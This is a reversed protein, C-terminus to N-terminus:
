DTKVTSSKSRIQKDTANQQFSLNNNPFLHDLMAVCEKVLKYLLDTTFFPRKDYKKLIKVLGLSTTKGGGNVGVIMIVAPKRFGLQLETKSGKSTLLQLVSTKLAEKFTEWASAVDRDVTVNGGGGNVDSVYKQLLVSKLQVETGDLMDQNPIGDFLSPRIWGEVVLWGGLNVGRVKESLGNALFVGMLILALASCLAPNFYHPPLSSPHFDLHRPPSEPSFSAVFIASLRPSSSSATFIASLQPRSSSTALGFTSAVFLAALFSAAFLTTLLSATLLSADFFATFLTTLLSAIFLATLLLLRRLTPNQSLSLFVLRLCCHDVVYIWDRIIEFDYDHDSIWRWSITAAPDLHTASITSRNDELDFEGILPQQGLIWCTRTNSSPDRGALRHQASPNPVSSPLPIPFCLLSPRCQGADASISGANPYLPIATPKLSIPPM